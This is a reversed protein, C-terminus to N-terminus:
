LRISYFDQVYVKAGFSEKWEALGSNLIKGNNENAIGFSFFRISAQTNKIIFDFLYDLAGTEKGVSNASIYQAHISTPNIFLTTGAVIQGEIYANCQEIDTPNREKLNEIQALTHVPHVGFREKLNPILIHNWFPKLDDNRKIEIDLKLAKKISRTRREQYIIEKHLDIVFGTDRRILKAELLFMAYLDEQAEIKHYFSPITKYIIETFNQATYYVRIEYFIQIIESLKIIPSLLLGGFTLGGHSYIKGDKENAPLLAVLKTKYYVLLSHDKFIDKHYDLFNRHFFFVANKSKPIFENWIKVDNETYRKIEIM